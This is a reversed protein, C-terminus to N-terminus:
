PTQIQAAIEGAKEKSCLFAVLELAFAIATGAGRSTIINGDRVVPEYSIHAGTLHEESGPYCCAHRGVLYGCKGLIEPGGCIAAMLGNNAAAAELASKVSQSGFLHKRGPGGPLIVGTISQMDLEMECIDCTISIGHSGTVTKSEGIAVTQVPVGARRLLDLPAIAELEEFGEAIFEYIM